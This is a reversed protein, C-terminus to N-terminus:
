GGRERAQGEEGMQSQHGVEGDWGARRRGLNGLAPLGDEIVLVFFPVAERGDFEIRSGSVEEGTRFVSMEKGGPEVDIKM